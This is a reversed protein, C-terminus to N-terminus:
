FRFGIGSLGLEHAPDSVDVLAHWGSTDVFVGRVRPIATRKAPM